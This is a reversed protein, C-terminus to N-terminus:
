RASARRGGQDEKNERNDSWNRLRSATRSGAPDLQEENVGVGEDLAVIVLLVRPAV